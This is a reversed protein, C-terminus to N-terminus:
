LCGINNYKLFEFVELLVYFFFISTTIKLSFLGALDNVKLLHILHLNHGM